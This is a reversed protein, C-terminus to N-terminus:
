GIARNFQKLVVREVINKAKAYNHPSGLGIRKVKAEIDRNKIGKDKKISNM